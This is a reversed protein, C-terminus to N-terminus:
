APHGLPKLSQDLATERDDGQDDDDHEESGQEHDDEADRRPDVIADLLLSAAGHTVEGAGAPKQENSTEDEGRRARQQYQGWSDRSQVPKTPQRAIKDDFPPRYRDEDGDDRREHDADQQGDHEVEDRPSLRRGTRSSTSARM